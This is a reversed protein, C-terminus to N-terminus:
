EERFSQWVREHIRYGSRRRADIANPGYFTRVRQIAKAIAPETLGTAATLEGMRVFRDHHRVLATLVKTEPVGLVGNAKM